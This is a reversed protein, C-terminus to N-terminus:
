AELHANRPRFHSETEKECVCVPELLCDTQVQKDSCSLVERSPHILLPTFHLHVCWIPCLCVSLPFLIWVRIDLLVASTNLKLKYGWRGRKERERESEKEVEDM